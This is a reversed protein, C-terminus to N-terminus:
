DGVIPAVCGSLSSKALLDAESNQARPVYLFNVWAFSSVLFRIDLLLGQIENSLGNTKLLLILEQCDSFCTLNEYDAAKAALLALKIASAEAALASPLFASSASGQALIAGSPDKFVWGMGGLSSGLTWAGDSFCVVADPDLLVPFAWPPVPPQVPSSARSGDFTIICYMVVTSFIASTM